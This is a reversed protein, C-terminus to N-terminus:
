LINNYNSGYAFRLEDEDKRHIITILRWVRTAGDTTCDTVPGFNTYLDFRTCNAMYSAFMADSIRELGEIHSRIYQTNLCGIPIVNYNNLSMMIERPKEEAWTHQKPSDGKIQELIPLALLSWMYILGNVHSHNEQIFEPDTHHKTYGGMQNELVMDRAKLNFVSAHFTETRNEHDIKDTWAMFRPVIITIPNDCEYEFAKFKKGELDDLTKNYWSTEFAREGEDLDDDFLDEAKSTSWSMQTLTLQRSESQLPTVVSSSVVSSSVNSSSVTSLTSSPISSPMLGDPTDSNLPKTAKLRKSVSTRIM